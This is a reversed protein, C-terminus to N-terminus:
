GLKALLCTLASVIGSELMVLMGTIPIVRHEGTPTIIAQGTSDGKCLVNTQGTFNVTMGTAPQNVTASGTATCGNNDTITVSVLGATLDIRLDDTAGPNGKSWSYSFPGTGGSPVAQATGDNGNRCTVHGTVNVTAGLATPDVLTFSATATCGNDDTVTVTYTGSALNTRMSDRAGPLGAPWTFSYPATGGTPTAIATGDSNGNCLPHTTDSIVLSLAPPDVM